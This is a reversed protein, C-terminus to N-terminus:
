SLWKLLRGYLSLKPEVLTTQRDIPLKRQAVKNECSALSIQNEINIKEM